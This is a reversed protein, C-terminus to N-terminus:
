TAFFVDSSSSFCKLILSHTFEQIFTFPSLVGVKKFLGLVNIELFYELKYILKCAQIREIM